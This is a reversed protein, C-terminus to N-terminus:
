KRAYSFASGVFSLLLVLAASYWFSIVPLSFVPPMVFNWLLMFVGACFAFVVFGFLVAAIIVLSALVFHIM